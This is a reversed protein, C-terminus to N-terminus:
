VPCRLSSHLDIEDDTSVASQSRTKLSVAIIDADDADEAPEKLVVPDVIEVIIAPGLNKDAAGIPSVPIQLIADLQDSWYVLWFQPLLQDRNEVIGQVVVPQGPVQVRLSIVPEPVARISFWLTIELLLQHLACM